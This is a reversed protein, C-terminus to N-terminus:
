DDAFLARARSRCRIASGGGEPMASMAAQSALLGLYTSVQFGPFRFVQRLGAPEWSELKEPEGDGRGALSRRDGGDAGGGSAGSAVRSAPAMLPTM